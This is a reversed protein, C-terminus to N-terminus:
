VLSAYFTFSSLSIILSQIIRGGKVCVPNFGLPEFTNVNEMSLPAPSKSSVFPLLFLHNLITLMKEM